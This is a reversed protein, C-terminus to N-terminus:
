SRVCVTAEFMPLTDWARLWEAALETTSDVFMFYGLNKSWNMNRWDDKGCSRQTPNTITYMNKELAM